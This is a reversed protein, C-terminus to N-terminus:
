GEQHGSTTHNLGGALELNHSEARKGSLMPAYFYTDGLRSHTDRSVHQVSMLVNVPRDNRTVLM